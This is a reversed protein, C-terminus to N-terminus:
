QLYWEALALSRQIVPSKTEKLISEEKMKADSECESM